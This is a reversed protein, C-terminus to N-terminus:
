PGSRGHHMRVPRRHLGTRRRLRTERMQRGDRAEDNSGINLTVDKVNAGSALLGAAYELESAGGTETKLPFGTVNHYACPASLTLPFESKSEREANVGKGLAGNGILGGSTEGPCGLNVTKLENGEHKEKGVLKAAVDGVYGKEFAATPEAPYNNNFTEEKYGFALSDGLALYYTPKLPAKASANSVLLASALMALALCCGIIRSWSRLSFASGNTASM